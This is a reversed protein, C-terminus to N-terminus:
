VETDRRVESCSGGGGRAAAAASGQLACSRDILGQGLMISSKLWVRAEKDHLSGAMHLTCCSYQADRFSVKQIILRKLAILADLKCALSQQQRNGVVQPHGAYLRPVFCSQKDRAQGTQLFVSSPKRARTGNAM